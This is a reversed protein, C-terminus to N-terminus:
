RYNACCGRGCRQMGGLLLQRNLRNSFYHTWCPLLSFVSHVRKNAHFISLSCQYVIISIDTLVSLCVYLSYVNAKTAYTINTFSVLLGYYSDDMTRITWPAVLGSM